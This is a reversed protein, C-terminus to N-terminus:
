RVRKEPFEIIRNHGIKLVKLKTAGSIASFIAEIQQSTVASYGISFDELNLVASALLEPKVASMSDNMALDLKRLKSSSGAASLVAQTQQLTLQSSSLEVEELGAVAWALLGPEVSSLDTFCMALKRLKSGGAMNELIAEAQTSALPSYGTWVEQLGNVLRALM